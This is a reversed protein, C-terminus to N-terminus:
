RGEARWTETTWHGKDERLRVLGTWGAIWVDGTREDLLLDRM